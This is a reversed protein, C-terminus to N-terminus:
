LFPSHLSKLYEGMSAALIGTILTSGGSSIGNSSLTLSNLISLPITVGGPLGTSPSLPLLPPQPGFNLIVIGLIGGTCAGGEGGSEGIRSALGVRGGGGGGDCFAACPCEGNRVNDSSMM